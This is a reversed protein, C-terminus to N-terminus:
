KTTMIPKMLTRMNQREAVKQKFLEYAEPAVLMMCEYVIKMMEKVEAFSSMDKQYKAVEGLLSQKQSIFKHLRDLNELDFKDLAKNRNRRMPEIRRKLTEIQLDCDNVLKLVEDYPNIDEAKDVGNENVEPLSLKSELTVMPLAEGTKKEYAKLYRSVAMESIPEDEIPILINLEDAILRMSKGKARLDLVKKGFGYDDIKSM